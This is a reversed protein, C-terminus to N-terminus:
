LSSGKRLRRRRPRGIVAVLAIGSAACIDLMRELDRQRVSTPSVAVAVAHEVMEPQLASVPCIHLPAGTRPLTRGPAIGGVVDPRLLDLPGALGVPLLMGPTDDAVAVALRTVLADHDGQPCVPVVVVTQAGRTAALLRLRRAVGETSDETGTARRDRGRLMGIAPVSLAAGISRLGIVGPRIIEALTALAIGGLLGLLGGLLLDLHLSSPVPHVPVTSREVVTARPREFAATLLRLREQERQRLGDSVSDQQRSQLDKPLGSTALELRQTRLRKEEQVLAGIREALAPDNRPDLTRVVEAAISDAVRAAGVASRDRVTLRAMASNGLGEVTVDHQAVHTADRDVGARQLATGVLSPLEALARLRDVPAQAQVSTVPAEVAAAVTASAEYTAPREGNVVVVLGLAVLLTLLVVSLHRRVVRRVAEDLEM